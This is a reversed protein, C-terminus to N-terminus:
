TDLPTPEPPPESEATEDYGAQIAAKLFAHAFDDISPWREDAKTSMAKAVSEMIGAPLDKFDAPGGADQISGETTVDRRFPLCGTLLEYIIVGLSFVDTRMDLTAGTIQEPSMYAPTGV